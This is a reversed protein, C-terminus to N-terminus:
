GRRSATQFPTSHGPTSYSLGEASSEEQGGNDPRADHAFTQGTSIDGNGKQRVRDSGACGQDCQDQRKPWNRPRVEVRGDRQGVRRLAAYGPPIHRNINGSLYNARKRSNGGSVQHEALRHEEGRPVNAAPRGL